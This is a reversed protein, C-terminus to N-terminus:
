TKLKRMSQKKKHKKKKKKKKKKKENKQKERKEHRAKKMKRKNKHTTIKEFRFVWGLVLFQFCFFTSIHLYSFYFTLFM